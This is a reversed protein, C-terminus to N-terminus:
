ELYVQVSGLVETLYPLPKGRDLRWVLSFGQPLVRGKEAWLRRGRLAAETPCVDDITQPASVRSVAIVARFDTDAVPMTSFMRSPPENPDYVLWARQVEQNRGKASPTSEVLALILVDRVRGTHGSKRHIVRFILGYEIATTIPLWSSM